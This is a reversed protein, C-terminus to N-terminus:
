QLKRRRFDNEWRKLDPIYITIIHCTQTVTDSSVVVHLPNANVFGLILYSPFPKDDLYEVIVQGSTVVFLVDAKVIGREFMRQIAHGSFVTYRCNM